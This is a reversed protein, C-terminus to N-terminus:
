FRIIKQDQYYQNIKLNLLKVYSKILLFFYFIFFLCRCIYKIKDHFQIIGFADIAYLITNVISTM